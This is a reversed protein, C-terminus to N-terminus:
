IKLQSLIRGLLLLCHTVKKTLFLPKEPNIMEGYEDNTKEVGKFYSLDLNWQVDCVSYFCHSVTGANPVRAGVGQATEV